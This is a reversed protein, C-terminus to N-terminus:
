SLPRCGSYMADSSFELRQGARLQIASGLQNAPNFPVSYSRDGGSSFTISAPQPMSLFTLRIPGSVARGVGSDFNAASECGTPEVRLDPMRTVEVRPVQGSPNINVVPPVPTPNINVRLYATGDENTEPPRQAHTTLGWINWMLLIANAAVFSTYRWNM